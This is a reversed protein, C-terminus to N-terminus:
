LKDNSINTKTVKNLALYLIGAIILSQVAPIGIPYVYQTLYGILLGITISFTALWNWSQTPKLIIKNIFFYHAMIVGAIVPIILATAYMFNVFQNMIGIIALVIGVIAFAFTLLKRSKNDELNFMNCLVLGGTYNSVLQSTWTAIWLVIFGWAPFGLEQMVKVIDASGSGISMIGGVVFLPFGVIIIGLPILINDRWSPKAFRTYDPAILWQSVNISIVLNIAEVFTMSGSPQWTSIKEWGLTNFSLYLAVAVLILGAPIAIYDVWKISGYGLISPIAFLLGIIITILIYIFLNEDKSIGILACLADSAVTTQIAWWGLTLILITVGVIFKSQKEGFSLAALASSTLGTKAGIYGQVANGIWQFFVLGILLVLVTDLLSFNRILIGGVLLVPICFELGGFIIAPVYWPQRENEPIRTLASDNETKSTNEIM